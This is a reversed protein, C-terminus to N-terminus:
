IIRFLAFSTNQKNHVKSAILKLYQATSQIRSVVGERPIASM